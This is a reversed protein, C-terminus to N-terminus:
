GPVPVIINSVYSVAHAGHRHLLLSLMLRSRSISICAIRRSTQQMSMVPIPGTVTDWTLGNYHQLKISVTGTLTGGCLLFLVIGVQNGANAFTVALYRETNLADNQVSRMTTPISISEARQWTGTTYTGNTLLGRVAM